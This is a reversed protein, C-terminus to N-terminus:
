ILILILGIFLLSSLVVSALLELALDLIDSHHKNPTMIEGRNHLLSAVRQSKTDKLSMDGEM